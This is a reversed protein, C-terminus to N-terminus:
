WQAAEGKVPIMLCTQIPLAPSLALVQVHIERIIAVKAHHVVLVTIAM